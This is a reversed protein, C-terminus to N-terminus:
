RDIRIAGAREEICLTCFDLVDDDKVCALSERHDAKLRVLNNRSLPYPQLLLLVLPASVLDSACKEMRLPQADRRRDTIHFHTLPVSPRWSFRLLALSFARPQPYQSGKAGQRIRLRCWDTM